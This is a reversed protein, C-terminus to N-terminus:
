ATGGRAKALQYRAQKERRARVMHHQALQEATLGCVREPLAYITKGGRTAGQFGRDLVLVIGAGVAAQVRKWATRESVGLARAIERYSLQFAGPNLGRRDVFDGLVAAVDIVETCVVYIGSTCM